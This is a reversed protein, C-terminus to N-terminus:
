LHKAKELTIFQWITIVKLYYIKILFFKQELGIPNQYDYEAQANDLDAQANRPEIALHIILNPLLSAKKLL